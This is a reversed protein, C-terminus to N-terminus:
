EYIKCFIVNEHGKDYYSKYLYTTNINQWNIIQAVIGFLSKGSFTKTTNYFISKLGSLNIFTEKAVMLNKYCFSRVVITSM